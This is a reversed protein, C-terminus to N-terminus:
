ASYFRWHKLDARSTGFRTMAFTAQRNCIPTDVISGQVAPRPAPGWQAEQPTQLMQTPSQAYSGFSSGTLIAAFTIMSAITKM